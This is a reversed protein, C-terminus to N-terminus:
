CIWGRWRLWVSFFFRVWSPYHIQRCLTRILNYVMFNYKLLDHLLFFFFSAAKLLERVRELFNTDKPNHHSNNRIDPFYERSMCGTGQRRKIGQEKLTRSKLYSQGMSSSSFHIQFILTLLCNTRLLLSCFNCYRLVLMAKSSISLVKLWIEMPVYWYFWQLLHM